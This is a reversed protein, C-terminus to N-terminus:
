NTQITYGKAQNGVLKLGNLDCLTTLFSELSEKSSDFVGTFDANQLNANEDSISIGYQQRLQNFIETLPKKVFNLVVPQPKVVAPDITKLEEKRVEVALSNNNLRLEQGPQLFVNSFSKGAVVVRGSILRVSTIAENKNNVRFVTGLATTVLSGSHVAFPRAKDPAVTFTGEGELYIDRRNDIYPSALRIRSNAALKVKSGDPM